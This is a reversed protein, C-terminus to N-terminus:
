CIKALYSQSMQNSEDSLSLTFDGIDPRSERGDGMSFCLNWEQSVQFHATTSQRVTGSAAGLLFERGSSTSSSIKLDRGAGGPVTVLMSERCSRSVRKAYALQNLGSDEHEENWTEEIWAERAQSQTGLEACAPANSLGFAMLGDDQEIKWGMYDYVHYLVDLAM